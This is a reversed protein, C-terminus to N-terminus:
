WIKVFRHKIRKEHDNSVVVRVVAWGEADAPTNLYLRSTRDGELDFRGDTMPYDYDMLYAKVKVNKVEDHRDSLDYNVYVPVIDGATVQEPTRISTIKIADSVSAAFATATLLLILTCLILLKKMM